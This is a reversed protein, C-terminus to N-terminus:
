RKESTPDISRADRDFQEAVGSLAEAGKRTRAKRALCRCSAAQDRLGAAAEGRSMQNNTM